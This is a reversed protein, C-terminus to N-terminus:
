IWGKLLELLARLLPVACCLACLAGAADMIRALAGQGADACLASGIRAIWAVAAAKWLPRFLEPSLGTLEMLEGGLAAVDAAAGFLLAGGVIAAAAALLLSLEPTERRLLSAAAAATLCLGAVRAVTEM